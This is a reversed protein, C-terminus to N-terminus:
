KRQGQPEGEDDDKERPNDKSTNGLIGDHFSSFKKMEEIIYEKDVKKVTAKISLGHKELAKGVFVGYMFASVQPPVIGVSLVCFPLYKDTLMMRSKDMWISIDNLFHAIDVKEKDKYLSLEIKEENVLDIITDPAIIQFIIDEKLGRHNKQFSLNM